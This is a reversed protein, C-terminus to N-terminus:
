VPLRLPSAAVSEHSSVRFPIDPEIQFRENWIKNSKLFQMHAIWAAHSKRPLFAPSWRASKVYSPASSRSCPLSQLCYQKVPLGQWIRCSPHPFNNCYPYALVHMEPITGVAPHLTLVCSASRNQRYSPVKSHVILLAVPYKPYIYFNTEMYWPLHTEPCCGSETHSKESAPLDVAFHM